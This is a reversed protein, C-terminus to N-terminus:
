TLKASSVSKVTGFKIRETFAYLKTPTLYVVATVNFKYTVIPPADPIFAM